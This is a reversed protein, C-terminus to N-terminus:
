KKIGIFYHRCPYLGFTFVKIKCINIIHIVICLENYTDVFDAIFETIEKKDM